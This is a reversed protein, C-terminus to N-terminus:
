EAVCSRFLISSVNYGLHALMPALAGGSVLYALAYWLGDVTKFFVEKRGRGVHSLGFLVATVTVYVSVGFPLLLVAPGVRFLLEEPVVGAIAAAARSKTVAGRTPAGGTHVAWLIADFGYLLAGCCLWLAVFGGTAPGGLSVSVDFGYFLAGSLASLTLVAAADHHRETVPRRCAAVAAAVVVAGLIHIVPLFVLVGLWVFLWQM